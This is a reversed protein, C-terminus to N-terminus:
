MSQFRKLNPDVLPKLEVRDIGQLTVARVVSEVTELPIDDEVRISVASPASPPIASGGEDSTYGGTPLGNAAFYNQLEEPRLIEDQFSVIPKSSLPRGSSDRVRLVSMELTWGEAPKAAAAEGPPTVIPDVSPEARAKAVRFRLNSGTAAIIEAVAQVHVYRLGAPAELQALSQQSGSKQLAAERRAQVMASLQHLAESGTGLSRNFFKVDALNGEADAELSILLLVPRERGPMDFTEFDHVVLPARPAVAPITLVGQPPAVPEQGFADNTPDLEPQPLMPAPEFLDKEEAVGQAVDPITKFEAEDDGIAAHGTAPATAEIEAPTTADVFSIEGRGSHQDAVLSIEASDASTGPITVDVMKPTLPEAPQILTAAVVGGGLGFMVVCLLLQAKWSVRMAMARDEQLIRSIRDTLGGARALGIAVASPLPQTLSEAVTVLLRAYNERDIGRAIVHADCLSERLDELRASISRLPLNWWYLIAALRQLVGIWLDGREIHAAEHLLVAEWDDLRFGAALKRPLVIAPRWLGCSLPSLIRRSWLLRIPRRSSAELIQLLERQTVPTASRILAALRRSNRLFLVLSLLLGLGWVVAALVGVSPLSVVAPQHSISEPARPTPRHAPAAPAAPPEQFSPRTAEPSSGLDPGEQAVFQPLQPGASEAKPIRDPDSLAGPEQTGIVKARAAPPGPDDAITPQAALSDFRWGIGQQDLVLVVGPLALLVVLTTVLASHRVAASRQRRQLARDLVIAIVSLCVAAVAVSALRSLTVTSLLPLDLGSM